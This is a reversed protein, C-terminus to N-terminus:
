GLRFFHDDDGRSLYNLFFFFFLFFFKFFSKLTLNLRFHNLFAFLFFPLLLLDSEKLRLDIILCRIFIITLHRKIGKALIGALKSASSKGIVILSTHAPKSVRGYTQHKNSFIVIL